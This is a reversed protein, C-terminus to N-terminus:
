LYQFIAFLTINTIAAKYLYVYIEFGM